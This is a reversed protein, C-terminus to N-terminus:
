RRPPPHRPRYGRTQRRASANRSRRARTACGASHPPRATRHWRRIAPPACPAGPPILRAALSRSVQGMEKQARPVIGIPHRVPGRKGPGAGRAAYGKGICGLRASGQAKQTASDKAKVLQLQGSAMYLSPKALLCPKAGGRIRSLARLLHALGQGRQHRQRFLPVHVDQRNQAEGVLVTVARGRVGPLGDMPQLQGTGMAVAQRLGIERIGIGISRPSPRFSPGPIAPLLPRPRRARPAPEEPGAGNWLGHRQAPGHGPRRAM